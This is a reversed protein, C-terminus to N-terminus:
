EHQIGIGAFNRRKSTLLQGDGLCRRRSGGFSLDSNRNIYNRKNLDIDAWGLVNYLDLRWSVHDTLRRQYGFDLFVSAEFAKDYARTPRVSRAARRPAVNRQVDDPRACRPIGWYVRLSTSLITCDDVDRAWAFKTLWPSWNAFDSGFGYPAASIGQVLSPDLLTGRILKVYGQSITFYDSGDVYNAELEWGWSDFTVLLTSRSLSGTLGVVEHTPYFVSAGYWLNRVARTGACSSTRSRRTTPRKGPRYCNEM